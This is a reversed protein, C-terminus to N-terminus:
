EKLYRVVLGLGIALVVGVGYVLGFDKLIEEM